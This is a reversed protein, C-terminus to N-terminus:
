RKKGVKRRTTVLHNSYKKPTRTKRGGTVKGHRTKPRRTGRGQKGEGGGYPHDVPNMVSGRVTPRIGRWRSRGAKGYKVLHHDSNSVEGITAFSNEDIKRIESSPMKVSTYGADNAVIQAYAGASRVLKAGAGAKVEVNHVYTGVPIRSLLTRNGPVIPATKSVLFSDGAKATKPLVIYRKEGDAYIVVGIFASRNPDYEITTIKGPIDMKNMKFDIDRYLRKNGGGKHQVTIRGQNNRGMSRKFGHTLSKEPKDGTLVKRYEITVTNRRSPTSPHYTKM